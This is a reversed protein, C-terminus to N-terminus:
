SRDVWSWVRCAIQALDNARKLMADEDWKEVEALSQNLNLPSYLFGGDPTNQKEHFPRNSLESNYGTLTLNGITDLREVQIREYDEGLEKKWEESLPQNRPMIHEITLKTTEVREKKGGHELKRLMYKCTQLNYVDRSVLAEKFEFDMPYKELGQMRMFAIKLSELYNEKEIHRMLTAFTKNINRTPMECISRRFIYSEVLKLIQIVDARGICDHAYDEYVGLLFPRIVEVNLEQIDKLCERIQQDEERPVAIDVYYKSYRFIDEVTEKVQESNEIFSTYNRFKLPIYDRFEDYIKGLTPIKETKLTLYDRIFRDFADSKEKFEERFCKEMPFWYDNYLKSQFDIEQGMLVYNRILDAHSLKVGDSNLSEFILQPNDQNRTLMIDVINLRQLGRYLIPLNAGALQKLFFQHNKALLPSHDRPLEKNDLLAFMTEKDQPRLFQKYHAEGKQDYNFLYRNSLTQPDTGVDIKKKKITKCFASLLLSLTALRQQGDVVLVQRVGGINQPEEPEMYVISGFFHSQDESTAGIRLVDDWLKQCQEKNWSYLRQYIPIVFQKAGELFELISTDTAKM